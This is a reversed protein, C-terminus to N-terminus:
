YRNEKVLYDKILRVTEIFLLVNIIKTMFYETLMNM